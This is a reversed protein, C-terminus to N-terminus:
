RSWCRAVGRRDLGSKCAVQRFGSRILASTPGDYRKGDVIELGRLASKPKAWWSWALLGGVVVAAGIALGWWPGNASKSLLADAMSLALQKAAPAAYHIGDAGPAIMTSIPRGDIFRRGFVRRMTQVVLEQAQPTGSTQRNTFPGIAWIEAGSPQYAGVLRRFAAEDAARGLGVDNTGLVVVIKTPRWALDRAVLEAAPERTWFNVASRSVLANTRVAQAGQDLLLSALLDGPGSSSRGSGANVGWIPNQGSAHQTLSDGFILIREGRANM